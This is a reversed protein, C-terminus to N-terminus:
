NVHEFKIITFLMLEAQYHSSDLAAGTGSCGDITTKSALKGSKIVFRLNSASAGGSNGGGAYVTSWTSSNLSEQIEYTVANCGSIANWNLQVSTSYKTGSLSPASPGAAPLFAANAVVSFLLGFMFILKM